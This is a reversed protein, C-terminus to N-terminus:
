TIRINTSFIQLDKSIAILQIQYLCITSNFIRQSVYLTNTIIIIHSTGPIQSAQNIGYRIAFLEAKMTIVNSTYHLTKKLSSNFLYIHTISTIINNKISTNSVIIVTLPDSSVNLM